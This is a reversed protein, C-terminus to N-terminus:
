RCQCRRWRVRGAGGHGDPSPSTSSSPAVPQRAPVPQRVSCRTSWPASGTAQWHRGQHARRAWAYVGYGRHTSTGDSNVHHWGPGASTRHASPSALERPPLRHRGVIRIPGRQAVEHFLDVYRGAGYPTCKTMAGFGTAALASMRAVMREAVEVYPNFLAGKPSGADRGLGRRSARPHCTPGLGPPSSM